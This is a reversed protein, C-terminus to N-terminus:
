PVAVLDTTSEPFYQVGSTSPWSIQAVPLSAVQLVNTVVPTGPSSTASGLVVDDFDVYATVGPAASGAIHFYITASTAPAPATVSNSIFAYSNNGASFTQFGTDGGSSWVIRWQCVQGASGSLAKAYFTFPFTTGGTVPVGAQHFQVLAGGGNTPILFVQYDWSGGHPSDNTRIGYVLISSTTDVAWGTASAGSGTEFGGNTPSASSPPTGPVIELDQYLRTGSPVPDFLTHTTGDGAVAAVLDTWTVDSSPSWQLLYPNITSTM